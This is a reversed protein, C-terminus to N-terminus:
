CSSVLVLPRARLMRVVPVVYLPFPTRHSRSDLTSETGASEAAKRATLGVSSESRTKNRKQTRPVTPKRM